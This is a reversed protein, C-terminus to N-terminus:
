RERRVVRFGLNGASADPLQSSRAAVRFRDCHSPHSLYSGGRVVRRTGATPGTPNVRQEDRHFTADFWDTCWEWVNGVMQYLGYGNPEFTQGPVTGVPGDAKPDREPFPGQWVNARPRDGTPPQDGWPYRAQELGGRAAYEWEAETPLRCGAWQCYAIADMWAVQVVPHDARDEIDSAPGEPHRWDAGPVLRWWPEEASLQGREATDGEALLGAFVFATGEVEAVTRFGTDAVFASFQDNTVATRALEFRGISVTRTPGEGDGPHPEPEDSGM